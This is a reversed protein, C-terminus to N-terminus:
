IIATVLGNAIVITKSTTPSTMVVLNGTYGTFVNAKGSLASLLGDVSSMPQTHEVDAKSDLVVQLGAINSMNHANANSVAKHETVENDIAVIDIEALNKALRRNAVDMVSLGMLRTLGM